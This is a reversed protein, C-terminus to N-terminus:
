LKESLGNKWAEKAKGIPLLILENINLFKQSTTSGIDYFSISRESFLKEIIHLNKFSVELIFYLLICSIPSIEVLEADFLLGLM